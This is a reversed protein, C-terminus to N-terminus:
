RTNFFNEGRKLGGQRVNVYQQGIIALDISFRGEAVHM